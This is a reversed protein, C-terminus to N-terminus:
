ALGHRVAYAAAAARSPVGLKGLINAVHNAATNRSVLLEAAIERDSHGEALLRLVEIERPTLGSPPDSTTAPASTVELAVTLAEVTADSLALDRGAAWAAAFADATLRARAQAVSEDLRAQEHDARTGGGIREWTSAAAGFLRAAQEARGTVAAVYGLSNLCNTATGPDKSMTLAEAFLSAARRLDGEERACTGLAEVAYAIPVSWGGARAAALADTFFRTATERDQRLTAVYGLLYLAEFHEQAKGLSRARNLADTLYAAAIDVDGSWISFQGLVLRSRAIAPEYKTEVALADGEDLLTAARALQGRWISNQATLVLLMARLGRLQPRIQVTAVISREMTSGGETWACRADWYWFLAIVLRVLTEPDDRVEAWELAARLNPLAADLERFADDKTPTNPAQDAQEALALYYAAHRARVAETEGSAALREGGFERITELLGFHPTGDPQAIRQVLSQDVLAALTDVTDVDDSGAVAVAADLTFSGAFVAFRRFLIQEEDTLLDYSWAIAGRMTQLRTPQDRAGGTLLRLRDDLRALLAEPSLIRLRATALEIALPLGDLRACIKAVVPANAATLSFGPGVGPGASRLPCLCRYRRSRAPSASRQSRPLAVALCPVHHEGTVRLVVRSTALIKLGPCHVLLHALHPAVAVVQEVNDLVLLLSRGGLWTTLQEPLPRTSSEGVGLARAIAPLVLAPDDISALPVFVVGDPFTEGASHAVALALRTKGVGGPGLLTVLPVDDRNLLSLVAAVEDRRGVLPTRPRPVPLLDLRPASTHM